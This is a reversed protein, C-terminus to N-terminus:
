KLAYPIKRVKDGLSYTSVATGTDVVEGSFDRGVVADDALKNQKLAKL